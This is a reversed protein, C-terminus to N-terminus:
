GSHTTRGSSEKWGRRLELVKLRATEQNIFRVAQELTVPDKAQRQMAKAQELAERAKAEDIDEARDATDALLRVRKGDIQIFGGATALREKKEFEDLGPHRDITIVGPTIITILPIHNPLIGIYGQPTPLSVQYIEEQFKLGEPTVIEFSISDSM